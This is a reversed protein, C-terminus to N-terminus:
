LSIIFDISRKYSLDTLRDIWQWIQLKEAADLKGSFVITKFYNFLYIFLYFVNSEM